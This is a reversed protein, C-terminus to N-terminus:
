LEFLEKLNTKERDMMKGDKGSRVSLWFEGSSPVFLMSQMTDSRKITSLLGWMSDLTVGDQRSKLAFERAAEYRSCEKPSDLVRNHNTAILFDSKIKEDHKSDRWGHQNSVVEVVMAPDSEGNQPVVTHIIFSGVRKTEALVKLFRKLPETEGDPAGQEVAKRLALASPTFPYAPPFTGSRNSFGLNLFAGVGQRNMCSLCGIFGAFGISVMPAEGEEAPISVFVVQNRLLARHLSWDLNRVLVPRGDTGAKRTAEGWASVSSCNSGVYDIYTNLALIDRWTFPEPLKPSQFKGGSADELGKLLGKSEEEIEKDVILRQGLNRLMALYLMPHTKAMIYNDVLDLVKDRLIRGHAYGREFHTGKLVVVPIGALTAAVKYKQAAPEEAPPATAEQARSIQPAHMFIFAGVLTAITWFRTLSLETTRKVKVEGEASLRTRARGSSARRTSAHQM